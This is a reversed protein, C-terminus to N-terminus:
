ERDQYKAVPGPKQVQWLRTWLGQPLGVALRALVAWFRTSLGASPEISLAEVTLLLVAVTRLWILLEAQIKVGVGTKLRSKM